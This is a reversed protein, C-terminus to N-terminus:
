PGERVVVLPAYARPPESLLMPFTVWVTVPTRVNLDELSIRRGEEGAIVTREDVTIWATDDTGSYHPPLTHGRVLLRARGAGDGPEAPAREEVVGELYPDVLVVAADAQAPYSERIGGRVWARVGQGPQLFGELPLPFFHRGVSAGVRTRDDVALWIPLPSQPTGGGAPERGTADGPGATRPVEVLVRWAGTAAPGGTRGAADERGPPPTGSTGAVGGAAAPEVRTIVGRVDPPEGPLTGPLEGTDGARDTGARLFGATAALAGAVVLTIWWAKGKM